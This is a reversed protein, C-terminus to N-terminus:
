PGARIGTKAAESVVDAADQPLLLRARVLGDAAARLAALYSDRTPYREELSLRPDGTKLREAKTTAFPIFTGQLSCFGGDFKDARFRNWGTYTGIPVQLFVSRVGGLDNGDADVQPVLVGYSGPLVRPPEQDIIGSTDAARFRPGFDLLHLGNLIIDQRHLAPRRVSGYVNTPISPFRVEGGPVLTGDALRPVSSPPPTQNHKVWGTFATLLARMTWIQPNPNPQQVCNGFAPGEPLPLSAAGHQTSAMIYTRVNPPDAIDRTGLPNTLGLSQRGEWMELATAVHFIRPCTGTASCRDLLGQERGTVPDHQRTYTFPFDYAPYLHDIQEGWARGPQGFRVNLPMLGGGIHPLAGDFVRQGAEDQNFGLHLLSRVMRGSQSSGQIIAVQDARYVPNAVGAQDRQVSRFFWGLDRAAAFGIGLVKPDRARYILEYFRGPQFGAPYCITHDSPTPTGDAACGGFRWADRPIGIAPSQRSTRVTLTANPDAPDDVPYPEHSAGPTFWGASLPLATRAAATVLEGRVIGTIPAGDPQRAIIPRMALRGDSTSLDQQWGFWILTYGQHFLFGDGATTLGNRDAASGGSGLNYVGVALKNGRNVVEFLLVGNGRGQDAPKLLEIDTQYEVQGRANRPALGIDQIIANRPDSPDLEGFATGILRQYSGAAGFSQGNFAPAASRIEIRTIRAELPVPLSLLLALLFTIARM